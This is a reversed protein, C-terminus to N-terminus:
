KTRFNEDNSGRWCEVDKGADEFSVNYNSIVYARADNINEFTITDLIRDDGYDGYEYVELVICVDSMELLSIIDRVPNKDTNKALIKIIEKDNKIDRTHAYFIDEPMIKIYELSIYFWNAFILNKIVSKHSWGNSNYLEILKKSILDQVYEEMQPSNCYGCDDEYSHLVRKICNELYIHKDPYHEKAYEFLEISKDRYESNIFRGRDFVAKFLDDWYISKSMDNILEYFTSIKKLVKFKSVFYEKRSSYQIHNIKSNIPDIKYIYYREDFFSSLDNTFKHLEILGNGIDYEGSDLMSFMKERKKIAENYDKIQEKTIRKKGDRPSPYPYDKTVYLYKMDDPIKDRRPETNFYHVAM